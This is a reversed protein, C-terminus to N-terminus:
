DWAEEERRKCVCSLERGGTVSNQTRFTTKKNCSIQKDRMREPGSCIQRERPRNLRGDGCWGRDWKTRSEKREM